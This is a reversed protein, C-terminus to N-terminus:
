RIQSGGLRLNGDGKLRWPFCTWDIWDRGYSFGDLVPLINTFWRRVIEPAIVDKRYHNDLSCVISWALDLM